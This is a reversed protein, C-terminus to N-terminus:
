YDDNGDCLERLKRYITNRSVGLVRAAESINGGCKEVTLKIQEIESERLTSQGFAKLETDHYRIEQLLHKPLILQGEAMNLAREMTSKLERVNGPWPYHLLLEQTEEALKVPSRNWRQCLQDLFHQALYIIDEGRERLSPIKISIVNLRYYLDERLNGARVESKLDRNSAAIVRLELPITTHSGVRVVEREQLVRLLSIQADLSMEGIEDLFITGGRAQEFKGPSGGKKAGTFAGEAYGFLESQVLDRPIAGCNVAVFLGKIKSQEHIGKAFLEKGTGTEGTLLVTSDTKSAQRGILIAEKIKPSRGLIHKFGDGVQIDKSDDDEQAVKLLIEGVNKQFPFFISWKYKKGQYSWNWNDDGVSLIKKLSLEDTNGILDEFQHGIYDEPSVGLLKGAVSNMMSIIGNDDVAVLGEFTKDAILRNKQCSLVLKNLANQYFLKNEIANAVASVMGMTLPHAKKSFVTVDLVAIMRGNIGFIPAAFCSFCHIEETFHESSHVIVSKKEVLATGIANTGRFQETWSAGEVLNIKATEQLIQPYGMLKLIFGDCDILMINGGIGKFYDYLKTMEPVALRLLDENQVIRERLECSSLIGHGKVRITDVGFQLSRRWSNIIIPNIDESASGNIMYQEWAKRKDTLQYEM